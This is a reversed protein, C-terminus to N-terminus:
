HEEAPEATAESEVLTPKVLYIAAALRSDPTPSATAAALLAPLANPAEASLDLDLLNELVYHISALKGPLSAATHSALKLGGTAPDLCVGPKLAAIAHRKLKEILSPFYEALTSTLGLYTPVAFPELLALSAAPSPSYINVPFLSTAEDFSAALTTATKQAMAYAYDASHLDNNNQFYTTLLICACFTKAAIYASGHSVGLADDVSAFTTSEAGRPGCLISEAKLIGNRQAPDHHDRNEMSVLLERAFPLRTKAWPNDDATLAYSTLLYVASLVSESTLFGSPGRTNAREAASTTTPSYADAIGMDHCLAMGGDRMEGSDGAFTVQDAYSYSATYLDFINRVVWPNRFLEWPLHDTAADIPNRWARPGSLISFYPTNASDVLQTCADYQRIAASFLALRAPDVDASIRTDFTHCSEKLRAASALIFSAAAEVRQFYTTYLYRSDLGSTASAQHFALSFLVTRTSRPAVKFAIGGVSADPLTSPSASELAHTLDSGVISFIEKAVPTAALAWRNALAIGCLLRSSWDLPRLFGPAKWNLGLFATAPSDSNSNDLTIELLLGPATAVQLSRARKPNPRSSHPTYVRFTLAAGSVEAAFTDVCPTLTRTIAAPDVTSWGAPAATVFPLCSTQGPGRSVAVLLDANETPTPSEQCLAAGRHPTGFSLSSWSGVPAHPLFSFPSM